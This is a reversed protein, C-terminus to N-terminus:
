LDDRRAVVDIGDRAKAIARAGSPAGTGPEARGLSCRDQRSPGRNGSALARLPYYGLKRQIATPCLSLLAKASFDDCCKLEPIPSLRHCRSNGASVRCRRASAGVTSAGGAAIASRKRSLSSGFPERYGLMMIAALMHAFFMSSAALPFAASWAYQGRPTARPGSWVASTSRMRSLNRLPEVRRSRSRLQHESSYHACMLRHPHAKHGFRESV